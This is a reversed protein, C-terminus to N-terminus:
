IPHELLLKQVNNLSTINRNDVSYNLYSKWNAAKNDEMEINSRNLTVWGESTRAIVMDVHYLILLTYSNASCELITSFRQFGLCHLCKSVYKCGLGFVWDLKVYTSTYLKMWLVDLLTVFRSSPLLLGMMNGVKAIKGGAAPLQSKYQIILQCGWILSSFGSPISSKTVHVIMYILLLDWCNILNNPFPRVWHVLKQKQLTQSLLNTPLKEGLNKQFASAM